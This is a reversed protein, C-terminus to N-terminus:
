YLTNATIFNQRPPVRIIESLKRTATLSATNVPTAISLRAYRRANCCEAM